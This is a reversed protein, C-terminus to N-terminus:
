AHTEARHPLLSAAGQDLWWVTEVQGRVGRAPTDRVLPDSWADNPDEDSAAAEGRPTHSALARAVAEAKDEGSVVFWVRASRAFAEFTLSVREPPPKPSDTVPVAIRNTLAAAPHHPFLSAVHGDPGVGLMVLEFGGTGEARVIDSYVDAATNVDRVEDSAPMAMVHARPLAGAPSSVLVSLLDSWAQAANRDQSATPVFRDDGWWFRVRSWDVSSALGAMERHIVRSISGGTLAIEHIPAGHAVAPPAQGVLSVFASAVAAAMSEGSDFIRVVPEAM